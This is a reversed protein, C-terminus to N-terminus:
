SLNAAVNQKGVRELSFACLTQPRLFLQLLNMLQLFLSFSLPGTSAGQVPLAEWRALRYGCRQWGRSGSGPVGRM